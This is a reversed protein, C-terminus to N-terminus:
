RRGIILLVVGVLVVGASLWEWPAVHEGGLVVGLLLAIVPNVFTYSTALAPPARGLLLMYANFAILSGFVVLYLWAFCAGAPAPLVLREGTLWGVGLLIIGGCIMESAFGAAGPALPLTRQSLVSGLSWGACAIPMCLLGVPSGQFGIGQTLMVVGVLGVVIGLVEAGRPRIGFPLSMLVILMPTVAIFVVVLGSSISLEAYATGGMGCGLMLAGVVVANRWQTPTPLPTGRIAVYSLLLAGAVVFRSGMMLFPPFGVLAFKIVLYTSGWVFWTAALCALVLPSLRHRPVPDLTLDPMPSCYHIPPTAAM